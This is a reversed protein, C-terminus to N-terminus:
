VDEWEDITPEDPDELFVTYGRWDAFVEDVSKKKAIPTIRLVPKSYHTVIVEEGTEEITRFIELMNAKLKSKSITQM